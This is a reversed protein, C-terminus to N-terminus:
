RGIYKDKRWNWVTKIVTAKNYAKFDLLTLGRVKSKKLITESIRSAKCNLKFKLIQREMEAFFVTPINVSTTDCRYIVKFLVATKITDGTKIDSRLKFKM